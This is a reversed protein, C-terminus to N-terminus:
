NEGVPGCRVVVSDLDLSEQFTLTESSVGLNSTQTLTLTKFTILNRNFQMLTLVNYLTFTAIMNSYGPFNLKSQIRTQKIKFIITTGM